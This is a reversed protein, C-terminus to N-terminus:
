KKAKAAAKKAPRTVKTAVQPAAVEAPTDDVLEVLEDAVLAAGTDEDLVVHEGTKVVAGGVKIPTLAAYTFNPM